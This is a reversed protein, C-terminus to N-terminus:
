GAPFHGPIRDPRHRDTWGNPSEKTWWRWRTAKHDCKAVKGNLWDSIAWDSTCYNQKWVQLFWNLWIIGLILLWYFAKIWESIRQWFILGFVKEIVVFLIVTNFIPLWPAALRNIQGIEFIWEPRITPHPDSTREITYFIFYRVM